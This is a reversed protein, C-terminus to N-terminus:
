LHFQRFSDKIFFNNRPCNQYFFLKLSRLLISSTSFAGFDKAAVALMQLAM